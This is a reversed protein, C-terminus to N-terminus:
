RDSGVSAPHPTPVALNDILRVRGLRAAVLLRGHTVLRTQEEFREDDCYVLYDVAFGQQTLWHRAGALTAAITHGGALSEAARKLARHVAPAQRRQEPDLFRNRSSIALGDPERHTPEIALEVTMDLDAVLRRIVAVQQADKEGFVAVDPRVLNFLKTVVTAVGTFHGPRAAGELRDGLPGADVRVIDDQGHPYLEPETPLFVAAVGARELLELDREETRPYRALDDPDEFQLPNVFISVIVTDARRKAHDILALHGAHLNGMTPVFGVRRADFEVSERWDRLEPLDRIVQM